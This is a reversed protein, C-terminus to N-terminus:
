AGIQKLGTLLADHLKGNTALVGRNEALTRGQSFDLPKGDLDTVRGGAEEVVISGAAQDWVKERYDPMNPSILRLNVDGAGSALVAYKAQSDMPVPDATIALTKVLLGIGGTDTHAKEVSCLLRADVEAAHDSVTIKTWGAGEEADLAQVVTGQGRVALLVCGAGNKAPRNGEELEPCGLAGVQVQGNSVQAFAVAYQDGRLFGKTGDVPDLTWYRPPPTEVAGRDIWECVDRTTADPFVHRVFHTVQELTARGEETRLSAASEEGVLVEGPFADSLRKAVVAQSAFDAVTVPSKDDKAIAEVVLEKQVRRAIQAAERVTTVAFKAEPTDFM